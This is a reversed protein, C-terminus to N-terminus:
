KASIAVTQQPETKRSSKYYRCLICYVYQLIAKLDAFAPNIVTDLLLFWLDELSSSLSFPISGSTEM